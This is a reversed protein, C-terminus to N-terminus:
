LRKNLQINDVGYSNPRSIISTDIWSYCEDCAQRWSVRVSGRRLAASFMTNYSYLLLNRKLFFKNLSKLLKRRYLTVCMVRYYNTWEYCFLLYNFLFMCGEVRPSHEEGNHILVVATFWFFWSTFALSHLFWFFRNSAAVVLLERWFLIRFLPKVSIITIISITKLSKCLSASFNQILIM